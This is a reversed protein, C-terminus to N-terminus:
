TYINMISLIPGVVLATVSVDVSVALGVALAVVVPSVVVVSAGVVVVSAGSGVVVVLLSVGDVVVSVGLVVASVLEEAAVVVSDVVVVDSGVLLLLSTDVDVDVNGVVVNAIVDVVVVATFVVGMENEGDREVKDPDTDVFVGVATAIGEWASLPSPFLWLLAM